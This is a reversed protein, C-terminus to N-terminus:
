GPRWWPTTSATRGRLRRHGPHRHRAVPGLLRVGDIAALGRRLRRALHREHAEIRTGDSAASSTSRRRSRSPGSSTPRGRRRGSPPSPGGCRTSTSSTWPGGAPWSPTARPSPPPRASSSGPASRRTSSTGASPWTTPRPPFPGTRHSSPPTSSSPSAATTPPPSSPPWHPSGGPSTRPAPSRSCARARPPRRPRRHRRRRRLHRRAPMRRLAAPRRAGPCCTPTTSSSPPSCWTTPTSACATPSTTSPRPPTAACSPSTGPAIVRAGGRAFALARARASEYAATALRSKYGAGRHVSSYLPVFREVAAMVAPFRAPRPPPTSAVYRRETGDVCPVVVDDGVLRAPRTQPTRWLRLRRASPRAAPRSRGTGDGDHLVLEVGPAAVGCRGRRRTAPVAGLPRDQRPGVRDRRSRAVAVISTSVLRDSSATSCSSSSM